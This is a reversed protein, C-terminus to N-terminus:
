GIAGAISDLDTALHGAFLCDKLVSFRHDSISALVKQSAPLERIAESGALFEKGEEAFKEVAM